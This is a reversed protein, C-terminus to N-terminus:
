SWELKLMICLIVALIAEYALFFYPAIHSVAAIVFGLVWLGAFCLATKPTLVSFAFIVALWFVVLVFIGM